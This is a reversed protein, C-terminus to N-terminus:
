ITWILYHVSVKESKKIIYEIFEFCYLTENAAGKPAAGVWFLLPNDLPAIAPLTGIMVLKESPRPLLVHM